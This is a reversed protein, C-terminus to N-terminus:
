RADEGSLDVSGVAVALLVLSVVMLASYVRPSGTDNWMSVVGYFLASVLVSTSALAALAFVLPWISRTSM